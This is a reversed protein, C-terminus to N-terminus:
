DATSAAEDAPGNAFRTALAQRVRELLPGARVPKPVFGALGSGRFRDLIQQETFGSTLLVPVRPNISRMEAFVQEGDINPMNLDLLVCDISSKNDRFVELAERGDEAAIVDLGGRKLIRAVTSRVFPEDDVVLVRGASRDRTEPQLATPKSESARAWPLVLSFTTGQGPTSECSLEWRHADVIGRVAALGLGRGDSKTSFFPDFIRLMADDDIGGGQDRVEVRAGAETRRTSVVVEGCEDGYSEAANTILNLFVQRLQSRDAVVCDIENLDLTLSVKKSLSARLLQRLDRLMANCDVPEQTLASRGASALMQSCLETASQSAALINDLSERTSASTAEDRALEANGVIVALLNNFDHAIGGAMVGVAEMKAAQHLQSELRDREIALGVMHAAIELSALQHPEPAGPEMSYLAMAGIVEGSQTRIPQSWCAAVGAIKAADRLDRWLPDKYIDEVVVPVNWYAATGCSGVMPGIELGEVAENYEDPLSPGAGVTVCNREPDVLLISCKHGPNKAEVILAMRCLMQGLSSGCCDNAPDIDQLEGNSGLPRGLAFCSAPSTRLEWLMPLWESTKTQHRAEVTGKGAELAAQAAEQDEPHIWELWSREALEENSLRLEDLLERSTCVLEHAACSRVLLNTNDPRMGSVLSM